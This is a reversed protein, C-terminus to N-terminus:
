GEKKRGEVLTLVSGLAERRDESDVDSYIDQADPSRWGGTSRRVLQDVNARRLLEEFARRLAHPSLM